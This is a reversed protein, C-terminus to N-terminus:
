GEEVKRVLRETRRRYAILDAITGLKLNHRQAFAVLDPLRAMTGDDNMIECIVGAPELGAMRALDISAETHGARELLGGEKAKLPFVHGPQVLDDPRARRDIAVQITRARDHASTGSTVGERAEISVTFATQFPSENKAAMLELGLEDCREPTLALCIIGRAEKAMFNVAEPTAFQAAMVLDGENERDEGDCVVVMRGERIDEIADEITAFDTKTSM